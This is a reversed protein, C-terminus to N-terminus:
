RPRPSISIPVNNPCNSRWHLTSIGVRHFLQVFRVDREILRRALLCNRAYSGPRKVDPGYADLVSVPEKSLDTLEPVSTQMRFAMEYANIRATTEGDLQQEAFTRNLESLDNLLDRRQTSSVGPPNALYLVPNAGPRLGVGQHSPPLFGSGWLRSFIPQGPNKGSGQSVLTVFEPLNQNVSGLGYSIWAGM